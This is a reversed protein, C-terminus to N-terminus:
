RGLDHFLGLPARAGARPLARPSFLHLCISFAGFPRFGFSNMYIYATLIQAM